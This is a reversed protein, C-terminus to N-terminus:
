QKEVAVITEQICRSTVNHTCQGDQQVLALVYADIHKYM